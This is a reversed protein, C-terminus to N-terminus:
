TYGIYPETPPSSERLKALNCTWIRPALGRVYWLARGIGNTGGIMSVQKSCLAGPTLSRREWHIDSRHAGNMKTMAQLTNM